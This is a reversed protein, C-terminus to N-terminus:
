NSLDAGKHLKQPLALSGRSTSKHKTLSSLMKQHITIPLPGAIQRATKDSFL